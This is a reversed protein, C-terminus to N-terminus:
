RGTNRLDNWTIGAGREQLDGSSSDKFIAPAFIKNAHQIGKRHCSAWYLGILRLDFYFSQMIKIEDFRELQQRITQTRELEATMWM